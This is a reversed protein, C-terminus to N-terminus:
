FLYTQQMNVGLAIHIATGNWHHGGYDITFYFVYQETQSKM